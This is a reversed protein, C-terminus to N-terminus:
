DAYKRIADLDSQTALFRDGMVALPDPMSRVDNVVTRGAKELASAAASFQDIEKRVSRIKEADGYVQILAKIAPKHLTYVVRGPGKGLLYKALPLFDSASPARGDPDWYYIPNQDVY